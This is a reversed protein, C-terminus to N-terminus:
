FKIISYTIGIGVVACGSHTVGVFPGIAWRKSKEKTLTKELTNNKEYLKTAQSQWEARELLRNSNLEDIAEILKEFEADRTSLISRLATIEANQSDILELTDKGDEIPVLYARETIISGPNVIIIKGPNEINASAPTGSMLLRMIILITFIKLLSKKQM